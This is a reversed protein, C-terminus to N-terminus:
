SNNCCTYIRICGCVPLVYTRKNARHQIEIHLMPEHISGQETINGLRTIIIRPEVCMYLIHLLYTGHQQKLVSPVCIFIRPETIGVTGPYVVVILLDYNIIKQTHYSVNQTM